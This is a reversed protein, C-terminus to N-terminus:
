RMAGDAWGAFNLAIFPIWETASVQRRTQPSAFNRRRVWSKQIVNKPPIIEMKAAFFESSRKLDDVLNREWIKGIKVIKVINFTMNSGNRVLFVDNKVRNMSEREDSLVVERFIPPVLAHAM